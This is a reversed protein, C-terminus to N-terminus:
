ASPLTIYSDSFHWCSARCPKHSLNSTNRSRFINSCSRSRAIMMGSYDHDVREQNRQGVRTKSKRSILRFGKLKRLAEMERLIDAITRNVDSSYLNSVFFFETMLIACTPYKDLRAILYIFVNYESGGGSFNYSRYSWVLEGRTPM